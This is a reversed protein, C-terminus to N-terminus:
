FTEIENKAKEKQKRKRFMEVENRSAVFIRQVKRSSPPAHRPQKALTQTQPTLSRM